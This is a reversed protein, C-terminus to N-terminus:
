FCAMFASMMSAAFVSEGFRWWLLGALVFGTTVALVVVPLRAADSHGSELQKQKLTADVM